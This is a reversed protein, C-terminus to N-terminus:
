VGVSVCCKGSQGKNTHEATTGRNVGIAHYFPRVGTVMQHFRDGCMVVQHLRDRCMVVQQFRDGCMVVQQFRDRCIVM